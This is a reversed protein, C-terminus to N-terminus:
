RGRSCLRDCLVHYVHGKHVVGHQLEDLAAPEEASEVRPGTDRETVTGDADVGQGLLQSRVEYSKYSCVRVCVRERTATDVRVPAGGRGECVAHMVRCRMRHKDRCAGQYHKSGFLRTQECKSVQKAGESAVM